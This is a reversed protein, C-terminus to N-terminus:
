NIAELAKFAYRYTVPGVVVDMNFEAYGFMGRGVRLDYNVQALNTSDLLVFYYKATGVQRCVGVGNPLGSPIPWAPMTVIGTGGTGAPLESVAVTDSRYIIGAVVPATLTNGGLITFYPLASSTGGGVMPVPWYQRRERENRALTAELLRIRAELEKM